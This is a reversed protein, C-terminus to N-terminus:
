FQESFSNWLPLAYIIKPFPSYMCDLVSKKKKQCFAAALWLSYISGCFIKTSKYIHFSVLVLSMLDSIIQRCVQDAMKGLACPAENRIEVRFERWPIISTLLAWSEYNLGKSTSPWHWNTNTAPPKNGQYLLYHPRVALIWKSLTQLSMSGSLVVEVNLVQPFQLGSGQWPWKIASGPCSGLDTVVKNEAQNKIDM